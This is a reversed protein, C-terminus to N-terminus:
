DVVGVGPVLQRVHKIHFDRASDAEAVAAGRAVVIHTIM